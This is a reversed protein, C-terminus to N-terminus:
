QLVIRFIGYQNTFYLAGDPGNEVEITCSQGQLDVDRVASLRSRGTDLIVRRMKGTKWACFFIQGRWEPIQWGTYVAVGTPAETPTISWIPYIYKEPNLPNTDDCPYGDRWGYNGGPVILNLEDDCDPGNDAGFIQGTVAFMYPDFDFDFTNRIGYAYTATGFPNGPAAILGEDTVQFRNIKGPIVDVNQANSPIYYEGIALYLMGDPGFHINGGQHWLNNTTLPINLMVEPTSGKGDADVKLRAIRNVPVNFGDGPVRTYYVYVYGTTDYDPSVAVGLLGREGDTSVPFTWVPDAQMAGDPSVRRLYGTFRETFFLTGDPAWDLAIPWSADLVKEVRYSTPLDPDLVPTMSPTPTSGDQANTRKPLSFFISSVVLLVVLAAFSLVSLKLKLKLM